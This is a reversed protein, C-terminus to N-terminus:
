SMQARLASNTLAFPWGVQAAVGPQSRGATLCHRRIRPPRRSRPPRPGLALHRHRPSQIPRAPAPRDRRRPLPPVRRGAGDRRAGPLPHRPRPRRARQGPLGLRFRRTLRRARLRGGITRSAELFQLKYQLLRDRREPEPSPRGLHTLDSAEALDELLALMEVVPPPDPSDTIIVSLRGDVPDVSGVYTRM